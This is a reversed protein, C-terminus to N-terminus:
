RGERVLGAIEVPAVVALAAAVDARGHAAILVDLHSAAVDPDQPAQEDVLWRVQDVLGDHM